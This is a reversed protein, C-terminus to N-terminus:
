PTAPKPLAKELREVQESLKKLQDRLSQMEASSPAQPIVHPVPPQPPMPLTRTPVPIQLSQPHGLMAAVAPRLDAPLKDLEKETIDWSENGRSVHIKAPESGSRTISASVGPPLIPTQHPILLNLNPTGPLRAVPPMGPMQPMAMGPAWFMWDHDGGRPRVLIRMHKQGEPREMPTVKVTMAQAERIIDLSLESTGATQVAEVLEKISHLPKGSAKILIDHELLGAKGAPTEPYASKVVLGVGAEIKLHRRLTDDAPECNLGIWYQGLDITETLFVGPPGPQGPIQNVADGGEAAGAPQTTVIVETTATAQAKLLGTPLLLGGAAFAGLAFSWKRM